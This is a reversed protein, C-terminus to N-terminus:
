GNILDEGTIKGVVVPDYSKDLVAECDGCYLVFGDFHGAAWMHRIWRTNAHLCNDQFEAIEADHGQKMEKMTEAM